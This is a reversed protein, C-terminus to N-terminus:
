NKFPSHLIINSTGGKSIYVMKDNLILKILVNGCVESEVALPQAKKGRGKGRGKGRATTAVALQPQVEDSIASM